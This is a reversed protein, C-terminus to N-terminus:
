NPHSKVLSDFDEVAEKILGFKLMLVGHNFRCEYHDPTMILGRKLLDIAQCLEGRLSKKAAELFYFDSNM